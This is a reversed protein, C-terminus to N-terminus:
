ADTVAILGVLMRAPISVKVNLTPPGVEDGSGGDQPIAPREGGAVDIGSEQRGGYGRGERVVRAIDADLDLVGARRSGIRMLSTMPGFGNPLVM